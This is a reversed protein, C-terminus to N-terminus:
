GIPPPEDGQGMRGLVPDVDPSQVTVGRAREPNPTASAAALEAAELEQPTPEPDDPITADVLEEEGRYRALVDAPLDPNQALFAVRASAKNAAERATKAAQEHAHARAERNDAMRVALEFEETARQAPSRTTRTM